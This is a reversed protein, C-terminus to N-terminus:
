ARCTCGDGRAASKSITGQVFETFDNIVLGFIITMLPLATGSTAACLCGLVIFAKDIPQAYRFLIGRFSARGEAKRTRACAHPGRTLRLTDDCDRSDGM